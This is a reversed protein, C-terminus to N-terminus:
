DITPTNIKKTSESGSVEDLHEVVAPPCSWSLSNFQGCNKCITVWEKSVSGCSSCVWTKPASARSARTLWLHANEFNQNESDELSAWLRCVRADIKETNEHSIIGLYKRAEGWLKAELAAEIRAIYSETHQPNYKALLESAKMRDLPAKSNESQWYLRVLEPHPKKKWVTEILGKAKAVEGQDILYKALAKASPTFTPDFDISQQFKRQAELVDGNKIEDRGLEYSLIARQKQNLGKDILRNQLLSDNTELADRWRSLKIQLDFLNKVVWESNPKLLYAEQTLNLASELENEKMALTILGRLGLFKTEAQQTMASFFDKAAKEDGNLQAAQASLLMTLPLEELLINARKGQRKAEIPDGAAVAVMGQTFARYGRSRRKGRMFSLIKEPARRIFSWFEYIIALFGALLIILGILVGVSTDIRYGQWYLLIRGPNDALWGLLSSVAAIIALFYLAKFM